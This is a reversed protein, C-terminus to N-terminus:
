KGGHYGSYWIHYSRYGGPSHRVTAPVRDRREAASAWGFVGAALYLSLVGGGFLAYLWMLRSVEPQRLRTRRTPPMGPDSM